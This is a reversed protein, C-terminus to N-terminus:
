HLSDFLLTFFLYLYIFRLIYSFGSYKKPPTEPEYLNNYAASRESHKGEHMNLKRKLQDPANKNSKGQIM